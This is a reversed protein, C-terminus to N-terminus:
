KKQRIWNLPGGEVSEAWGPWERPAECKVGLSAAPGPGVRPAGQLSLWWKYVLLKRKQIVTEKWKISYCSLREM